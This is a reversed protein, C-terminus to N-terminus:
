KGAAAAIIAEVNEMKANPPMMCGSSLILGSGIDKILRTCYDYIEDPDSLVLKSSPVDGKICLRGGLKEKIKYIDTTGDTEFVCKGKPFVKFYDLDREWNSDCHIDCVSGEEIIADATEKIYKWVFREWLKPSYFESAGRAPSLFVVEPRLERIEKRLDEISQKLIVDLVAEVKDPIKYLDRMYKAMSRGGGLFENVTQCVMPSYVVYGADEVNKKAQPIYAMEEQAKAFDINLRNEIYDLKFENWGKNLITDYDEAKMLEKEDLQWLVNDALERGPLKIKSMFQFPFVRAAAFTATTGDFDKFKKLADVIVKNSYEISKAFESLKVGMQVACFSDAMMVVPTRDPKELAVAKRFRTLRENYLEQTTKM